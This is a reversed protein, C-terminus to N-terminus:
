PMQQDLAKGEKQDSTVEQPSVFEFTDDFEEDYLGYSRLSYKMTEWLRQEDPVQPVLVYLGNLLMQLALATTKSPLEVPIEGQIKGWDLLEEFRSLRRKLIDQLLSHLEKQASNVEILSRTFFCGEATEDQLKAHVAARFTLTLLSKISVGEEAADWAKEPIQQLYKELCERYLVERSKFSNYFSSRTIGMQQSLSKVSNASFGESWFAALAVEIAQERDFKLKRGM